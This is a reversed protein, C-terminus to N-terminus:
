NNYIYVNDYMTYACICIYAHINIYVIYRRYVTDWYGKPGLSQRLIHLQGLLGGFLRRLFGLCWGGRRHLAEDPPSEVHDVHRLIDHTCWTDVYPIFVCTSSSAPLDPHPHWKDGWFYLDMAQRTTLYRRHRLIARRNHCRIPGVTVQTSFIWFDPILPRFWSERSSSCTTMKSETAPHSWLFQNKFFHCTPHIWLLSTRPHVHYRHDLHGM